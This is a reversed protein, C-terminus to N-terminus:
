FFRSLLINGTPGYLAITYLVATILGYKAWAAYSGSHQGPRAAPQQSLKITRLWAIGICASALLAGWFSYASGDGQQEFWTLPLIIGFTGMLFLPLLIILIKRYIKLCTRMFRFERETETRRLLGKTGFFLGVAVNLLISLSLIKVIIAYLYLVVLLIIWGM